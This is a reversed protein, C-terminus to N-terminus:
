RGRGFEEKSPHVGLDVVETGLAIPELFFLRGFTPDETPPDPSLRAIKTSGAIEAVDAARIYRDRCRARMIGANNARFRVVRIGLMLDM